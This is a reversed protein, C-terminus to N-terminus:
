GARRMAKAIRRVRDNFQAITSLEEYSGYQDSIHWGLALCAREIGSASPDAELSAVFTRLNNFGSWTASGEPPNPQRDLWSQADSLVANLDSMTRRHWQGQIDAVSRFGFKAEAGCVRGERRVAGSAGCGRWM